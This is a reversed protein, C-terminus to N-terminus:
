DNTYTVWENSSAKRLGVNLVTTYCWLGTVFPDEGHQVGGWDNACGLFLRLTYPTCLIKIKGRLLYFM